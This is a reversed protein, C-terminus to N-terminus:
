FIQNKYLVVLLNWRPLSDKLGIRGMTMLFYILGCPHHLKLELVTVYEPEFIEAVEYTKGRLTAKTNTLNFQIQYEPVNM